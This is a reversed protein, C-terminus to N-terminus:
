APLLDSPLVHPDDLLGRTLTRFIGAYRSADYHTRILEAAADGMKTLDERPMSLARHLGGVLADIDRPPYLMGTIGDEILEPLGFVAAALVPTGFAMAELVSRPLSEVDSASVLLDAMAYWGYTDDVVPVRRIRDGLDLRRVVEQFAKAYPTGNDGVLVLVADPFAGAIEAFAIALAAQAKRPEYTGMCLLVTADESIGVLRRLQSVNTAERYRDVDAVTIGYSVTLFRQPDGHVAYQCRTAYAEFVVAATSRLAAVACDRVYPDIGDPGYAAPWYENLTYSEHIAWVAPIGLRVALDAGLFAGMTNVIAVNCGHDRALVALERMVTEYQEASAAPYEGCVRVTAGLDELESRLPGDNAAVVLCSIDLEVLLRRLLESLYLQGGGLDLRHTVVLLRVVPYSSAMPRACAAAVRDRLSRLRPSVLASAPKPGVVVAVPGITTREGDGTVVDAEIRVRQGPERDSLDVTHSFGAVPAAPLPLAAFDPRQMALPRALGAARGDVRVEV